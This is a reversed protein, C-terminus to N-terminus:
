VGHAGKGPWGDKSEAKICLYGVKDRGRGGERRDRWGM